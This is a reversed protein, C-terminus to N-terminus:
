TGWSIYNTYKITGNEQFFTYLIFTDIPYNQKLTELPNLPFTGRNRKFYQCWYLDVITNILFSYAIKRPFLKYMGGYMAPKEYKWNAIFHYLFIDSIYLLYKYTYLYTPQNNIELPEKASRFRERWLLFHM